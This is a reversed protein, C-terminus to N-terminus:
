DRPSALFLTLERLGREYETTIARQSPVLPTLNPPPLDDPLPAPLQRAPRRPLGTAKWGQDKAHQLCAVLVGGAIVLLFVAVVM